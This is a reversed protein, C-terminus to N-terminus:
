DPSPRRTRRSRIRAAKGGEAWAHRQNAPLEALAQEARRLAVQRRLDGAPGGARDERDPDRPGTAGSAGEADTGFADNFKSFQGAAVQLSEVLSQKFEKLSQREDRRIAQVRPGDGRPGGARGREGRRQEPGHADTLVGRCGRPKRSSSRTKRPRRRRRSRRSSRSRRRSTRWRRIPAHVGAGGRVPARHHHRGRPRAAPRRLAHGALEDVSQDAGFFAENLAKGALVAGGVLATTVTLAPALKGPHRRLERPEVGREGRGDGGDGARHQVPPEPPVRGGEDRPVHRSPPRLQQLAVEVVPGLVQFANVVSPLIAGGLETAAVTLDNMTKQMQFAESESTTRFADALAGTSNKVADFIADVKSSEQVTLGLVGTLSRVNPVVKRLIDNYEAQTSTQSKAAEDLLRLAGIIGDEAIVDLLQQSSLGLKGLAEAAQSGPAAIAQLVGRMATVGENVDLGINSLAAMSAAVQDFSVGVTSAIPLIRGLANAFEEPEARGERVAAVLVDTAGAATLGSGAYANLASAVINAVDATSGLGVASAKASAELAPMVEEAKLGASSLFFLADALETPAQATEGALALTSEKMGDIADASTNSIAAIRTFSKDFDLAMKVSAAGIVGLAAIGATGAVQLGAALRSATAAMRSTSSVTQAEAAKMEALYKSTSLELTVIAKGIAGGIGASGLVSGLDAVARGPDSGRRGEGARGGRRARDVPEGEAEESLVKAFALRANIALVDDDFIAGPDVGFRECTVAYLRGEESRAFAALVRM